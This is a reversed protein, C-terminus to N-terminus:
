VGVLRGALFARAVRWDNAAQRPSVGVAEAADDVSLGVFFRLEVLRACRENLQALEQLAADLELVDIASRKESEDAAWEIATSLPVPHEGGGRKLRNRGRAHDVLIRRMTNAAIGFFMGRSRLDLNQQATLRMYAEHILGTTGLTHGGREQAMQSAAITRLEEYVLPMLADMAQRDGAAASALLVTVEGKAM